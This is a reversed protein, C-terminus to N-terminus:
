WSFTDEAYVGNDLVIRFKATGAPLPSGYDITVQLTEVPDWDRDGDGGLIVYDWYRTDGSRSIRTSVGNGPYLYIDTLGLDSEKIVTDGTNKVWVVLSFHGEADTGPYETLVKLDTKMRDVTVSNMSLISGSASYLAPYIANLLVVAAIITAVTLIATSITEEAM